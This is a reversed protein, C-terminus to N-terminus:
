ETQSPSSFLGNGNGKQVSTVDIDVVGPSDKKYIQNVSLGGSSSDSTPVASAGQTSSASRTSASQGHAEDVVTRTSGGGGHAILLAVVAGAVAGALVPLIRNLRTM